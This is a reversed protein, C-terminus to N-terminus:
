DATFNALLIRDILSEKTHKDKLHKRLELKSLENNSNKECIPCSYLGKKPSNDSRSSSIIDKKRTKEECRPHVSYINYDVMQSYNGTRGCIHCKLM